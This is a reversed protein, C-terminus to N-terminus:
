GNRPNGKTADLLINFLKIGNLIPEGRDDKVAIYVAEGHDGINVSAWHNISLTVSRGNDGVNDYPDSTMEPMRGLQDLARVKRIASALPKDLPPPLEAGEKAFSTQSKFVYTEEETRMEQWRKLSDISEQIDKGIDKGAGRGGAVLLKKIAHQICPDTINYLTCIRYVDVFDLDRVDKHYHSHKTRVEQGDSARQLDTLGKINVQQRELRRMAIEEGKRELDSMYRAIAARCRSLADGDVHWNQKMIANTMAERLSQLLHRGTFSLPIDGETTSKYVEQKM